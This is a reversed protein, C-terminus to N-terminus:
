RELKELSRAVTEKHGPSIRALLTQIFRTGVSHGPRLPNSEASSSEHMMRRLQESLSEDSRSSAGSLSKKSKAGQSAEVPLKLGKAVASDTETDSDDDEDTSEIIRTM